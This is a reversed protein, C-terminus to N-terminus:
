NSKIDVTNKNSGNSVECNTSIRDASIGEKEVLYMKIAENRKNCVAQSAKSAEPYGIVSINCTPNAKMKAAVSALMAKTDNSLTQINGKFTLSPYDSPCTVTMTAPGAVINKCCEPDPCKGVGDANVPQCITPTILEKDKCDPVGDGDTDRSVGHTDVPCGAPTNPERDLQDLVGDGDSDEFVPKPLKMHRPQNLESYAYDLPNLWYLPEVAKGGLNFNLHVSAYNYSDYDRTQAPDTRPQEQWQQGDLLDTKISTFRDEIALNIRNSIKFAVGAIVTASPKLTKGNVGPSTAGNGRSSEADSEYTNDMGNRLDNIIAKRRKYLNTEGAYKAFTSNFLARYPKGNADLANVKTRFLSAGIGGGGYLIIGTKAKHFRINNLTFIGQLSLDQLKTKYNYYVFDATPSTVGAANINVVAGNAGRVPAFYQGWAPNKSFSESAKWNLGKMELNVYEARVSFLYGIAKRLTFGFNPATFPRTSVDGSVNAIGTSVGFEVMNRPKAPFSYSNNFFENQQGMRKNPIVSSDYISYGGNMYGTNGTQTQAFAGASVVM